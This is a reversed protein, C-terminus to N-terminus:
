HRHHELRRYMTLRIVAPLIQFLNEDLLCMYEGILVCSLQLCGLAAFSLGPFGRLPGLVRSLRLLEPSDGSEFEVHPDKLVACDDWNQVLAKLLLHSAFSTRAVKSLQSFGFALWCDLLVSSFEFFGLPVWSLKSLGPFRLSGAVVFVSRPRVFM